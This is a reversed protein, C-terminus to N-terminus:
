MSLAKKFFPKRKRSDHSVQEPDGAKKLVRLFVDELTSQGISYDIIGWYHRKEELVKFLKSVVGRTANFQYTVSTSFKDLQTCPAPLYAEIQQCVFDLHTPISNILLQFGSGHTNKLYLPAGLCRLQGAAVIGIKDCLADAEEMSHTTLIITKDKKAKLIIEWITRRVDPDLGTTPEDLFLVKSDGALAIAISLRRKEGGSLNKALRTKAGALEVQALAHEVIEKEMKPDIGRLRTYFLLHEEITLDRWLLDHQPCIGISTYVKDMDTRINHGAVYVTGATPPYLGTMVHIASSKGAGNPGLLGFVMNKEASFSLNNVVVKGGPYTKVLEKVVLNRNMPNIEGNLIRQQEEKVDLDMKEDTSSVGLSKEHYLQTTPSSSFRNKIWRYPGKVFFLYHKPVGYESPLVAQFYFTLLMMFIWEFVLFKMIISLEDTADLHGLDYPRLGDKLTARNTLHLFGEYFAFSPHIYWTRPTPKTGFIFALARRTKSFFVSFLFGMAVQVNIWIGFYLLLIWPDTRTFLTYQFALGTIYFVLCSITQMISFELYHSLTHIFTNLGSMKMIIFVHDEKERVLVMVFISMLFSIAFPYFGWGILATSDNKLEKMNFKRPMAQLKAVIEVKGQSLANTIQSSAILRRFGASPYYELLHMISTFTNIDLIERYTDTVMIMYDSDHPSRLYTTLLALMPFSGYQLTYSITANQQDLKDFLIAGHPLPNIDLISTTNTTTELYFNRTNYLMKLSSFTTNFASVLDKNVSLKTSPIFIGTDFRINTVNNLLLSKANIPLNFYKHPILNLFPGQDKRSIYSDLCSFLDYTAASVQNQYCSALNDRALQIFNITKATSDNSAAPIASIGNEAVVYGYPFTQPTSNYMLRFKTYRTTFPYNWWGNIPKPLYTTDHQQSSELNGLNIFYPTPNATYNDQNGTFLNSCSTFYDSYNSYNLYGSYFYASNALTLPRVVDETEIKQKVEGFHGLLDQVNGHTRNMFNDSSSCYTVSSDDDYGENILPDTANIIFHMLILMILPTLFICCFNSKWNRVTLTLTLRSLARFQRPSKIASSYNFSSNSLDDNNENIAISTNDNKTNKQDPNEPQNDKDRTYTEIIESMENTTTNENSHELLPPPAM